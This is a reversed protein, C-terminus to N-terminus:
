RQQLQVIVTRMHEIGEETIVVKGWADFLVMGEEEGAAFHTFHGPALAQVDSVLHQIDRGRLM